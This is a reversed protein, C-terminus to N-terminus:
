TFAVVQVFLALLMLMFIPQGCSANALYLDPVPSMTCSRGDFFISHPTWSSTLSVNHKTFQIHSEIYTGEKLLDNHFNVGWIIGAEDTIKVFFYFIFGLFPCMICCASALQICCENRMISM